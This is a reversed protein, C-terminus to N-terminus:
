ASLSATLRSKEKKNEYGLLLLGSLEIKLIYGCGLCKEGEHGGDGQALSGSARHPIRCAIRSLMATLPDRYVM